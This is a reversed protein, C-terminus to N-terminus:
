EDGFGHKARAEARARTSAALNANFTPLLISTALHAKFAADHPPVLPALPSRRGTTAFPAAPPGRPELPRAAVDYADPGPGERAREARRGAGLAMLVGAAAAANHSHALTLPSWRPPADAPAAAAAAAAELKAWARAVSAAGAGGALGLAPATAARARPPSLDRLSWELPPAGRAAAAEDAARGRAAAAATQARLLAAAAPAPPAGGVSAPPPPAWGRAPPAARAGEPAAARARSGARPAAGLARAIDYTGPPPNERLQREDPPLSFRPESGGLPSAAQRWGAAGTAPRAAPGGGGGGGGGGSGGFADRVVTSGFPATAPRGAAAAARAFGSAGWPADYAGPGPTDPAALGMVRGGGGARTPPAFAAAPAVAKFAGGADAAAVPAYANPPLGSGGGGAAGEIPSRRAADLSFAVAAGSGRAPAARPSYSAADPAADPPASYPVSPARRLATVDPPAVRAERPAPPSARGGGGSGFPGPGDAAEPPAVPSRRGTTSFPALPSARPAGWRAPAAYAHAGGAWPSAAPDPRPASTDFPAAALRAARPPSPAPLPAAGPWADRGGPPPSSRAATDYMSM